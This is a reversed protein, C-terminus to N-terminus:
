SGKKLNKNDGMPPFALTRPQALKCLKGSADADMLDANIGPTVYFVMDPDYKDKIKALKAYNSGWFTDKWNTENWSAKM